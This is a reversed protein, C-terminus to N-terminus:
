AEDYRYRVWLSLLSCYYAQVRELGCVRPRVSVITRRFVCARVCWTCSCVRVCARVCWKEELEQLAIAAPSLNGDDISVTRQITM